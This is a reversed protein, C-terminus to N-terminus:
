KLQNNEIMHILRARYVNQMSDCYSLYELYRGEPNCFVTGSGSYYRWANILSLGSNYLSMNYCVYPDGEKVDDYLKDVKEFAICQVEDVQAITKYQANDWTQSFDSLETWKTDTTFIHYKIHEDMQDHHANVNAYNTLASLPLIDQWKWDVLFYDDALYIYPSSGLIPLYEEIFAAMDETMRFTVNNVCLTLVSDEAYLYQGDNGDYEIIPHGALVKDKQEPNSFKVIMMRASPMDGNTSSPDNIENNKQSCSATM